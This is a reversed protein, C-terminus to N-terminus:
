TLNARMEKRFSLIKLMQEVDRSWKFWIKSQYPWGSKLTDYLDPNAKYAAIELLRKYHITSWDYANASAMWNQFQRILPLTLQDSWFQTKQHLMQYILFDERILFSRNKLTEVIFNNFTANSLKSLLEKGAKNNWLEAAQHNLWFQLFAYLWNDIKWFAVSKTLALIIPKSLDNAQFFYDLCQLPKLQFRNEWYIPPLSAILYDLCAAEKDRKLMGKKLIFGDRISEKDLEEPIQLKLMKETILWTDARREMRQMWQSEPLQALLKNAKLRVERRKDNLCNELFREDIDSLNVELTQLFAKKHQVSEKEWTSEILTIAQEPQQDRLYRLIALQTEHDATPWQEVDANSNLREWDPNLNLLWQGRKGILPKIQKWLEADSLCKYFFGPLSEPALSKNAKRLYWVFEPLADQYPGELIEDLHRISIPSCYAEDETIQNELLGEGARVLPFAAKRITAYYALGELIEQEASNEKALGKELLQQRVAEPLTSRETGLLAAKTLDNWIKM